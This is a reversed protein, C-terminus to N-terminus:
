TCTDPAMLKFIPTCTIEVLEDAMHFKVLEPGQLTWEKNNIREQYDKLPM